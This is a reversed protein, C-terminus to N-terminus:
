KTGVLHAEIWTRIDSDRYYVRSNRHTGFKFYKPGINRCRMSRLRNVTLWPYRRAVEKETLLRDQDRFADRLKPMEKELLEELETPTKEKGEMIIETMIQKIM